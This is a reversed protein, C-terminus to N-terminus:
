YSPPPPPPSYQTVPQADADVRELEIDLGGVMMSILNFVAAALGTGIFGMVGYVLPMMLVFVPGFMWEGGHMGMPGGAMGPMFALFLFFPVFVLSLIAYGIGGMIASKLVAIRRLRYKM